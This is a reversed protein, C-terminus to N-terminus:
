RHQASRWEVLGPEKFVRDWIEHGMGPYETYRPNGGAKRIAAIMNRNATVFTPNDADGQFSWIPMDKVNRALEPSGGGCLIVAAAFLDPRKTILNWTGYAGMSQGAVYLRRPDIQFEMKLSDLIGIVQSLQATLQADAQSDSKTPRIPGGTFDWGGEASQPVVVFAPNKAQNEAATWIRTGPIQDGQIQRQNDTGSGSGGHLWVILPYKRSENYKHPVFLRYPMTKGAEGYVRAVFGDVQNQSGPLPACAMALLLLVVRKM